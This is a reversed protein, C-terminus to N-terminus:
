GAAKLAPFKCTIFHFSPLVFVLEPSKNHFADGLTLSSSAHLMQENTKKKKIQREQPM